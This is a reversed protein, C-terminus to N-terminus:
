EDSEDTEYVEVDNQPRLTKGNVSAERFGTYSLSPWRDRIAWCICAPIPVRNGRGTGGITAFVYQQYAQYRLNNANYDWTDFHRLCRAQNMATRVCRSGLVLFRLESDELLVCPGNSRRCCVRAKKNEVERCRGCQCWKPRSAGDRLLPHHPMGVM